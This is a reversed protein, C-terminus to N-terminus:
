HGSKTVTQWMFVQALELFPASVCLQPLFTTLVMRKASIWEATLEINDHSWSYCLYNQPVDSVITMLLQEYNLRKKREKLFINSVYTM